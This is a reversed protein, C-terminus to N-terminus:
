SIAEKTELEEIVVQGTMLEAYTFSLSTVYGKQAIDVCFLNDSVNTLKGKQKIISKRKQKSLYSITISEGLYSLLGERILGLDSVLYKKGQLEQAM